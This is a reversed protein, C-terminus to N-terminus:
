LVEINCLGVLANEERVCVLGGSCDADDLCASLCLGAGQFPVCVGNLGCDDDRTCVRTCTGSLGQANEVFTVCTGGPCEGDEIPLDCERQYDTASGAECVGAANCVPHTGECDQWNMCDGGPSVTGDTFECAQVHDPHRFFDAPSM